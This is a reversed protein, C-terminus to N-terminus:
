AGRRAGGRIPYHTLVQQCMAIWTALFTQDTGFTFRHAEVMHDATAEVTIELHGAKDTFAIVVRLEPEMTGLIATGDLSAEMSRLETAFSSISITDLLSGSLQVRSGNGVVAATTRLWNSDWQDTADPHAYGHVWISLGALALSPTGLRDVDSM